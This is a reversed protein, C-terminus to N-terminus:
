HSMQFLRLMKLFSCCFHGEESSCAIVVAGAAEGCEEPISLGRGTPAAAEPAKPSLQQMRLTKKGFLEM